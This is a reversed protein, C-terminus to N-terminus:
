VKVLKAACFAEQLPNVTRGACHKCDAQDHPGTFRSDATLNPLDLNSGECSAKPVIACNQWVM